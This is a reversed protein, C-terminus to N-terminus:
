ITIRLVNHYESLLLCIIPLRFVSVCLFSQYIPSLTVFSQAESSLMIFTFLCDVSKSFISASLDYIQYPGQIWILKQLEIIFLCIVGVLFYAPVERTWHNLSQVEFAPFMSEIGPRPLLIQLWIFVKFFFYAFSKFLCKVSSCIQIVLLVTHMSLRTQRKTVRHVTAWWAGRDM